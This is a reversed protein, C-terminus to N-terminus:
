FLSKNYKVNKMNHLDSIFCNTDSNPLFTVSINYLIIFVSKIM